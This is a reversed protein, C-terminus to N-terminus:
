NNILESVKIRGFYVSKTTTFSTLASQDHAYSIVYQGSGITRDQVGEQTNRVGYLRELEYDFSRGTTYVSPYYPNLQAGSAPVSPWLGFVTYDIPITSGGHHQHWQEVIYHLAQSKHILPVDCDTLYSGRYCLTDHLFFFGAGINLCSFLVANVMCVAIAKRGYDRALSYSTTFLFLLLVAYFQYTMDPREGAHWLPGNLLPCAMYNLIIFYLPIFYLWNKALICRKNLYLAVFLCVLVVIQFKVSLSIAYEIASTVPGLITTDERYFVPRTFSALDYLWVPTFCLAKFSEIIRGYLPMSKLGHLQNLRVTNFYPFWVLVCSSILGMSMVGFNLIMDFKTKYIYDGRRITILLFFLLITFLACTNTLGALYFSPMYFLLIVSITLYISKKSRYFGVLLVLLVVNVETYILQNWFESGNVRLIYSSFLPLGTVIAMKNDQQSVSKIWLGLVAVLLLGLATSVALLGPLRSLLAGLLVMGNPNPIGTSSILGVPTSWDFFHYGIYLNTAQDERWQSVLAMSWRDVIVLLLSITSLAFIAIKKIQM